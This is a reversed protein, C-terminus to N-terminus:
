ISGFRNSKMAIIIISLVILICITCLIYYEYNNSKIQEKKGTNLYKEIIQYTTLQPKNNEMNIENINNTMWNLLSDQNRLANDDLPYKMLHNKYNYRCKNCPLIHGLSQLFNRMNQKEVESPNQPYSLGIYLLFSWAPPGWLNPNINTM